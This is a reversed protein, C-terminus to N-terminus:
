FVQQRKIREYVYIKDENTFGYEDLKEEIEKIAMTEFEDEPTECSMIKGFAKVVKIINCEGALWRLRNECNECDMEQLHHM